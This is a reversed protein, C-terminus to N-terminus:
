KFPAEEASACQFVPYTFEMTLSNTLPRISRGNVVEEHYLADSTIRRLFRNSGLAVSPVGYKPLGKCWGAIRQALESGLVLQHFQAMKQFTDFLGYRLPKSAAYRV